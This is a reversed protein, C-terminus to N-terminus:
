SAQLLSQKEQRWDRLPTLCELATGKTKDLSAHQARAFNSSQNPPVPAPSKKLQTAAPQFQQISNFTISQCLIRYLHRKTTLRIFSM